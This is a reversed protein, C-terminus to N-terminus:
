ADQLSQFDLTDEIKDNYISGRESRSRKLKKQRYGLDRHDYQLKIIRNM